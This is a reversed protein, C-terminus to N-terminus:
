ADRRLVLVVAATVLVASIAAFIGAEIWQFTWYRGAPQYTTRLRFGAHSMCADMAERTRTAACDDPVRVPGTLVTNGRVLDSSMRWAGDPSGSGTFMPTFTTVPAAFHPRVFQEILLRVAVFGAVTTAIAPVMRRWAVGACLGLAAAFLTYAVPVVGQQDFPLPEFRNHHYSNLTGSWWTVMGSLAAGAVISSALLTAVKGRLWRRRTVSQTWALVNTGTEFDRGVSTVGWFVGILLPVAVTLNVLTIILTDSDFLGQAACTSGPASCGSLATRYDHAMSTGTFALVVALAALLGAAVAGQMRHQRWLLWTM